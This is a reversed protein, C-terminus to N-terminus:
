GKKMKSAIHAAGSRAGALGQSSYNGVRAAGSSRGSVSEGKSGSRFGRVTDDVGRAASGSGRMALGPYSAANAAIAGLGINTAALAQAFTPVLIMLGMGLLMVVVFSLTDGLTEVSDLETPAVASATAITFGAMAAVLLPVFAFGIALKVWAEFIPATQKFFTCVIAVPGLAILVALMIKAASMVIITVVAMLAAILFMMVSTLAGVFIGGNDSIAQGVDLANLYLGDLRAYLAASEGGAIETVRGGSLSTLFSAGIEAPANTLVDYVANFEAYSLFINIVVIRLGLSILTGFTLPVAQIVINIGGLIVILVSAAAVVPNLATVVDAYTGDAISTVSTDVLELVDVIIAM